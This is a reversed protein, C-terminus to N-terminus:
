RSSLALIRGSPERLFIERTGLITERMPVIVEIGELGFCDDLPQGRSGGTPYVTGGLVLPRAGTERHCGVCDSGPRMEASSHDDGVWRLGSQCTDADVARM